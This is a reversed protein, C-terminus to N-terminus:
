WRRYGRYGYRYGGRYGGGYRYGGWYPRYGGYYVVPPGVVAAPPAIPVYEDDVTSGAAYGRPAAARRVPVKGSMDLVTQIAFGKKGQWDVECWGDNCNTADVLSGGPIKAVIENTTGAASRMNVTSTVYAPAAFAQMASFALLAAGLILRMTKMM